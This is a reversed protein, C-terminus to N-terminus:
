VKCNCNESGTLLTSIRNRHKAFFRYAIDAFTRIVPLRLLGIWKHKGVTKWAIHTVDLGFILQGTELEGHLINMAKQKDVNPYQIEFNETHLDILTLQNNHDHLKLQKMEMQCLPCQSDYYITVSM